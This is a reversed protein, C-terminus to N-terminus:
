KSKAYSKKSKTYENGWFFSNVAEGILYLFVSILLMVIFFIIRIPLPLVDLIPYVWIGSKYFIIHLWILYVSMFSLLCVLGFSRKPYKRPTLIMEILTSVIIMTHMLHNLWWPFYPDLAKPLVLERDVFMLSWFIIGVFMAIPFGLIAHVHDKLKRIFPPKKPNVANTGFWDNLICIFFFIAQIILNWVTLFKFPGPDFDGLRPKVLSMTVLLGKHTAFTYTLCSSMHHLENM